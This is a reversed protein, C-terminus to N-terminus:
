VLRSLVPRELNEEGLALAGLDLRSSEPTIAGVMGSIDRGAIGPNIRGGTGSIDRGGMGSNNRGGMAPAYVTQSPTGSAEAPEDLTREKIRELLPFRHWRLPNRHAM